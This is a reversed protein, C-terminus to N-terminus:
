SQLLSLVRSREGLSVQHKVRLHSSVQNGTSSLGILCEPRCCLLVHAVPDIRLQLSRFLEEEM